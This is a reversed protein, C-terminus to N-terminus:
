SALLRNAEASYDTGNIILTNTDYDMGHIVNGSVIDKYSVITGFTYSTMEARKGTVRPQQAENLLGRLTVVRGINQGAMIDRLREYYYLDVWDGPERGFLGRIDEHAGKVTITATLEEIEGPIGLAFWGGGSVFRDMTKNLRPLTASELRKRCNLTGVYWNAGMIVRDTM